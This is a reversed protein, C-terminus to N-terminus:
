GQRRHLGERDDAHDTALDQKLAAYRLRLVPEARLGDRFALQETLRKSGVAMLHLHLHAVWTALPRSWSGGGRRAVLEPPM